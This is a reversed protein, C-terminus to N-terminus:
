DAWLPDAKITGSSNVFRIIDGDLYSICCASYRRASSDSNIYELIKKKGQECGEECEEDRNWLYDIIKNIVVDGTSCVDSYQTKLFDYLDNFMEEDLAAITDVIKYLDNFMEEDLAAITDVIKDLKNPPSKEKNSISKSM